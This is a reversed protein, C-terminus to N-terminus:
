PLSKQFPPRDISIDFYVVEENERLIQLRYWSVGGRAFGGM